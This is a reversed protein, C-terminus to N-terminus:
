RHYRATKESGNTAKERRNPSFYLNNLKHSTVPTTAAHILFYYFFASLLYLMPQFILLVAATALHCQPSSIGHNEHAERESHRQQPNVLQAFGACM